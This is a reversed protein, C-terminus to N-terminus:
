FADETQCRSVEHAKSTTIRGYRVAYWQPSPKQNKTSEEVAQILEKDFKIKLLNKPWPSKSDQHVMALYHLSLLEFLCLTQAFAINKLKRVPVQSFLFFL